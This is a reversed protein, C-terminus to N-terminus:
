QQQLMKRLEAVNLNQLQSSQETTVSAFLLKSIGWFLFLAVATLIVCNIAVQKSGPEDKFWYYLAIILGLPPVAVSIMYARQKKKTAMEERQATALANMMLAATDINKNQEGLKRYEEIQETVKKEADM